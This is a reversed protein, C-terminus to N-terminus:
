CTSTPSNETEKHSHLTVNGGKGERGKLHQACNSLHHHSLQHPQTSKLQFQPPIPIPHTSTSPSARTSHNHPTNNRGPVLPTRSDSMSKGYCDERTSCQRHQISTCTGARNVELSFIIMAANETNYVILMATLLKDKCKTVTGTLRM